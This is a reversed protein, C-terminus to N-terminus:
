FEIKHNKDDYVHLIETYGYSYIHIYICTLNIIKLYLRM